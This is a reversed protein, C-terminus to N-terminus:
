PYRNALTSLPLDIKLSSLDLVSSLMSVTTALFPFAEAPHRMLPVVSQPVAAGLCLLVRFAPAVRGKTNYLSKYLYRVLNEERLKRLDKWRYIRRGYANTHGLPFTSGATGLRRKGGADTHGFPSFDRVYGLRHQGSATTQDSPFNTGATNMWERFRRENIYRAANKKHADELIM